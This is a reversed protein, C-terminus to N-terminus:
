GMTVRATPTRRCTSLSIRTVIRGSSGQVGGRDGGGDADGEGVRVPTPGHLLLVRGQQGVVGPVQHWTRGAGIHDSALPKKAVLQSRIAGEIAVLGAPNNPAEGLTGAHVVILGEVGDDLEGCDTDDEREGEGLVPRDVLEVDLVGEKM